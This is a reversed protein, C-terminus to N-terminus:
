RMQFPEYLSCDGRILAALQRAQVEILKRYSLPRGIKRHTICSELKDAFKNVFRRLGNASLLVAGSGAETQFDDPALAHHNLIDLVLSDVVPVRFEEILDLVLAPRGYKETHFYGLHPDLGVIELAATAAQGLFTYGLGLLANVADKPPRRTRKQSVWPANFCRLYISFYLHAAEGEIGLLSPLSVARSAEFLLAQMREIDPAKQLGRRRLLRRVLTVQNRIKGRVIAKAFALRFDLDDDKLYQAKRLYINKGTPPSLCGLPKGTRSVLYLPAGAHLLAHLAQTTAGANGVLVVQSVGQLPARLIVEDDRTVLLRGYEKELRADPEIVYLTPM